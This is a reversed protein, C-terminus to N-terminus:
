MDEMLALGAAVACQAGYREVYDDPPAKEGRSMDRLPNWPEVPIQLNTEIWSAVSPMQACDGVLVVRGAVGGSRESAFSMSREVERLWREGSTRRSSDKVPAGPVTEAVPMDEVGCNVHRVVPPANRDDLRMVVVNTGGEGLDVGVIAGEGPPYLAAMVNALAIGDPVVSLLPVHANNMLDRRHEVEAKPAAIILMGVTVGGKDDTERGIEQFDMVMEGINPMLQEAEIQAAARLEDPAMEPFEVQHVIVDCTGLSCRVGDSLADSERWLRRVGDGAAMGAFEAVALQELRYGAEGKGSLAVLRAQAAGLDLGVVCRKTKRTGSRM